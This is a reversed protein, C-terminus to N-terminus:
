ITKTFNEYREGETIKLRTKTYYNNTQIFDEDFRKIQDNFYKIVEKESLNGKEFYAIFVIFEFDIRSLCLDFYKQSKEDLFGYHFKFEKFIQTRLAKFTEVSYFGKEILFEITNNFIISKQKEEALFLEYQVNFLMRKREKKNFKRDKRTM